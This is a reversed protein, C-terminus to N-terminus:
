IKAFDGWLVRAAGLYAAQAEEKTAFTGLRIKRGGPTISAVFKGREASVGKLGLKNRRDVVRNAMNQLHTCLRINLRKNNLGDGDVHDVYQGKGADLLFRHLLVPKGDMRAYAYAHGHRGLQANWCYSEVLPLDALDVLSWMGRGLGLRVTDGDIEIIQAPHQAM